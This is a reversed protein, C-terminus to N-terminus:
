AFSASRWTTGNYIYMLNISPNFYMSGTKPSSPNISNIPLVIHPRDGSVEVSFGDQRTSSNTGTGVVFISTSNNLTNYQGVATQGQKSAVTGVGEAHSYSSLAITEYGEAHSYSGSARTNWGEAHSYSGSSITNLGEAHSYDGSATTQRGEAHSAIGIAITQGGEVHSASGLAQNLQGEAHSAAGSAINTNGEAHSYQGSATTMLGEAHAYEGSALTINGETHSFQGSARTNFGEAHSYDGSAKAYYGEAHSYNGSATNYLGNALSASGSAINNRGVSFSGRLNNNTETFIQGPSVGATNNEGGARLTALIQSPQGLTVVGVFNVSGTSVYLEAWAQTESGLNKSSGSPIAHGGFNINQGTFPTISNVKVRSM